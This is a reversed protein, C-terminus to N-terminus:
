SMTFAALLHPPEEGTRHGDCWGLYVGHSVPRGKRHETGKLGDLGGPLPSPREAGAAGGTM